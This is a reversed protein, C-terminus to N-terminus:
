LVLEKDKVAELAVMRDVKFFVTLCLLDNRKTHRGMGRVEELREINATKAREFGQVALLNFLYHLLM